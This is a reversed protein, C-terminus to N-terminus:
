NKKWFSPLFLFLVAFFELRGLLMWVISLIKSFPSLFAFSYEPNAARFGFGVNNMMCAITGLATQPDVHDFVLCVEGLVLFFIFIVFFVLVTSAAKDDIEQNGITLKKVREPLFLSHLKYALTKYLIYIRSTKFGGATSGSMGGVFMLLLIVLQVPLPWYDYNATAFGTSSQASVAQFTGYRFAESVSFLGGVSGDFLIKKTGILNFSVTLSGLLIIALFFLFDPEYIRYFKRKILYFYLSFNISGVIMFVIVIWDTYPNNYASISSNKISFGGTSL